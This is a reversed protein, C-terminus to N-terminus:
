QDINLNNKLKNKNPFLNRNEKKHKEIECALNTQNNKKLINNTMCSSSINKNANTYTNLISLNKKCDLSCEENM